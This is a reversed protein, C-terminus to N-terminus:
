NIFREFYTSYSPRFPTKIEFLELHDIVVFNIKSEKEVIFFTGKSLKKKNYILGGEKVFFSYSTEPNLDFKFDGNNFKYNRIEVNESDM